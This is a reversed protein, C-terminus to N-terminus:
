GGIELGRRIATEIPSDSGVPKDLVVAEKSTLPTQSMLRPSKGQIPQAAHVLFPHCLYVDGASGTAFRVTRSESAQAALSTARSFSMGEAGAPRLFSPVDLHSGIRMQTPGDDTGVDSFLFLVLLARERCFINVRWDRFDCDGSLYGEPPFSEDVHWGTDSPDDRHPFRVVFLGLHSRPQWRGVGMLQDFTTHLRPNDFAAAFPRADSPLVRVVPETWSAPDDPSKGLDSWIVDQGAAVIEPPVVSQLHVFGDEIFRNIENKSLASETM